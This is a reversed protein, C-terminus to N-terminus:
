IRSFLAIDYSPFNTEFCRRNIREKLDQDNNLNKKWSKEKVDKEEKNKLINQDDHYGHYHDKMMQQVKEAKLIKQNALYITNILEKIHFQYKQIM